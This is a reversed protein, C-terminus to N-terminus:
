DQYHHPRSLLLFYKLTLLISLCYLCFYKTLTLMDAPTIRYPSVVRSSYLAHCALTPEVLVMGWVMIWGRNLSMPSYGQVEWTYSISWQALSHETLGSVSLCM